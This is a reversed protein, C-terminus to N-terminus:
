GPRTTSGNTSVQPGLIMGRFWSKNVVMHARQLIDLEQQLTLPRSLLAAWSREAYHGEEINDDRTLSTALKRWLGQPPVDIQSYTTLFVGGYCVPVVTQTELATAISTAEMWSMM